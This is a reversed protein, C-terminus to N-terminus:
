PRVRELLSVSEIHATQPFMDVPQVASLRYSGNATFLAIDRALTSPDCSVYVLARPAMAALTALARPHCGARPPDVLVADFRENQHQLQGLARELVGELVTLNALNNLTASARADAVASPQSEVAVVRAAREALFVSFLGVGSYGDLMTETRRPHLLGIARQVLVPTQTANVQFFSGASIRFQHGLVQEILHDQGVIVRGRGGALGVIVVGALGPIAAMLTEALGQPGNVESLDAAPRAEVSLLAQAGDPTPPSAAVRVTFREVQQGVNSAWKALLWSRVGQYIEDLLPHVIPCETMDLVDHSAVKRFGIAGDLGVAFQAVTRYRWVDSDAPMGLTPQVPPNPVKGLRILLQRLIRAKWTLQAPYALHQWQFGGTESLDPYRPVVRDPSVRLIEEIQARAYARREEMIEARVVEGPIGGPIFVARGEYRGVADGGHALDTLEIEIMRGSGAKVADPAWTSLGEKWWVGRAPIPAGQSL